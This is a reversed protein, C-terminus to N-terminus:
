QSLKTRVEEATGGLGSANLAGQDVHWGGATSYTAIKVPQKGQLKRWCKLSWLCNIRLYDISYGKKEVQNEEMFTHFFRAAQAMLPKKDPAIELNCQVTKANVPLHKKDTVVDIAQKIGWLTQRHVGDVGYITIKSNNTRREVQERSKTLDLSKLQLPALASTADDLPKLAEEEFMDSADPNQWDLIWGKLELFQPGAWGSVGSAASAASGPASLTGGTSAPLQPRAAAAIAAAQADKAIALAKDATDNAQKASQAAANAASVAQDAKADIADIKALQVKADKTDAQISLLPSKISIEDL